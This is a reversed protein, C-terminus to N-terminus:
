CSTTCTSVIVQRSGELKKDFCPQVSVHFLKRPNSPIPIDTTGAQKVPLVFKLVTGIVQQASKISSVYPLIQPTTKEAYCIFGPCHSAVVPLPHPVDTSFSALGGPPIPVPTDAGSPLYHTSSHPSTTPPSEWCPNCMGTSSQHRCTFIYM